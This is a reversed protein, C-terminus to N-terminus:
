NKEWDNEKLNTYIYVGASVSCILFMIVSLAASRNYDLYRNFEDFLVIGLMKPANGGMLYPTTFSSVNSMFVFTAAVIVDKISLPLIMSRFIRLKGAGVDSAAEVISNPIGGLGAAIMMAAFPINFWLNMTIIGSAHYMMGLNINVGFLHGIRNIMGTDRIITIMAYVACMAPVFRPLLYLMGIARSIKSNVFRLYLALLYAVVIAVVVTVVVIYLTYLLNNRQATDTFFYTYNDMTFEGTSGDQFSQIVASVIPYAVTLMVVLFAPLVMGYAVLKQKLNKSM